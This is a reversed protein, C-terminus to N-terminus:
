PTAVPTKKVCYASQIDSAQSKLKSSIPGVADEIGKQFEKLAGALSCADSFARNGKNYRPNDIFNAWQRREIDETNNDKNGLSQLTWTSELHALYDKLVSRADRTMSSEPKSAEALFYLISPDYALKLYSMLEGRNEHELAHEMPHLQYKFNYKFLIANQYIIYAYQKHPTAAVKKALDYLTTAFSTRILDRSQPDKKEKGMMEAGLAFLGSLLMRYVNTTAKGLQRERISREFLKELFWQTDFMSPLKLRAERFDELLLFSLRTTVKLPLKKLGDEIRTLQGDTLKGKLQDALFGMQLPDLGQFSNQMAKMFVTHLNGDKNLAPNKLAEYLEEIRVHVKEKLVREFIESVWSNINASNTDVQQDMMTIVPVLNQDAIGAVISKDTEILQRFIQSMKGQKGINLSVLSNFDGKELLAKRWARKLITDDMPISLKEVFALALPINLDKLDARLAAQVKSKLIEHYVSDSKLFGEFDKIVLVDDVLTVSLFTSVHQRKEADSLKSSIVMGVLSLAPFKAIQKPDKLIDEINARANGNTYTKKGIVGIETAIMQLTLDIHAQAGGNGEAKSIRLDNILTDDNATWSKVSQPNNIVYWDAGPSYLLVDVPKRDCEQQSPYFNGKHGCKKFTNQNSVVVDDVFEIRIVRDGYSLSTLPTKACYLGPGAVSGNSTQPTTFFTLEGKNQAAYRYKYALYHNTRENLWHYCHSIPINPDALKNAYSLQSSVLLALINFPLVIQLAGRLSLNFLNM